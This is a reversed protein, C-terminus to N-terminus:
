GTLLNISDTTRDQNQHANAYRNIAKGMQKIKGALGHKGTRTVDSITSDTGTYQRSLYDANDAWLEKFIKLFPHRLENDHFNM